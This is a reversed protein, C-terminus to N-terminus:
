EAYPIHSFRILPDIFVDFRAYFSRLKERLVWLGIM